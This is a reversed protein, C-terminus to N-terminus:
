KSKLINMIEDADQEHSCRIGREAPMLGVIANISESVSSHTSIYNSAPIELKRMEATIDVFKQNAADLMNKAAIASPDASASLVANTSVIEDTVIKFTEKAKKASSLVYYAGNLRQDEAVLTFARRDFQISLMTEITMEELSFRRMLELLETATLDLFAAAETYTKVDSVGNASKIKNIYNSYNNNLNAKLENDTEGSKNALDHFLHHTFEHTLTWRDSDVRVQIAAESDLTRLNRDFRPLYLGLINKGADDFIKRIDSPADPLSNTYACNNSAYYNTKYFRVGTLQGFRVTEAGSVNMLAALRSQDIPKNFFTKIINEPPLNAPAQPGENYTYLCSADAKNTVQPAQERGKGSDDKNCSVFGLVLVFSCLYSVLKMLDGM